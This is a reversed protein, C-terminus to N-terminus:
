PNRIVSLISKDPMPVNPQIPEDCNLLAAFWSRNSPPVRAASVFPSPDASKSIARVSTDARAADSMVPAPAAVGVGVGVGVSRVAGVKTVIKPPLGAM